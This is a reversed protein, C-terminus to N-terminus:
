KSELKIYMITQLLDNDFERIFRTRMSKIINTSNEIVFMPCLFGYESPAKFDFEKYLVADFPIDFLIKNGFDASIFVVDDICSLYIDLENSNLIDFETKTMGTIVITM